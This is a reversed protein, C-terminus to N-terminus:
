ENSSLFHTNIVLDDAGTWFVFIRLVLVYVFLFTYYNM